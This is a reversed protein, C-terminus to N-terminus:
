FLLAASKYGTCNFIPICISFKLECERGRGTVIMTTGSEPASLRDQSTLVIVMLWFYREPHHHAFPALGAGTSIPSFCDRM